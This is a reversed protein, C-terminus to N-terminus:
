KQIDIINVNKYFKKTSSEYFDGVDCYNDQVAYLGDPFKVKAQGDWIIVNKVMGTKDILAHRYM